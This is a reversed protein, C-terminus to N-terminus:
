NKYFYFEHTSICCRCARLSAFVIIIGDAGGIVLSRKLFRFHRNDMERLRDKIAAQESREHEEM